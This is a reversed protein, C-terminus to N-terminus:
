WHVSENDHRTIYSFACELHRLRHCPSNWFTQAGVYEHTACQHMRQPTRCYPIESTDIPEDQTTNPVPEDTVPTALIPIDSSTSPGEYQLDRSEGSPCLDFSAQEETDRLSDNLDHWPLQEEVEALRVHNGAAEVVAIRHSIWM